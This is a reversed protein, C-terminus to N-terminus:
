CLCRLYVTHVCLSGVCVGGIFLVCVHVCWFFHIHYLFLCFFKLLSYAHVSLAYCKLCLYMLSCYACAFWFIFVGIFLICVCVCVCVCVCM